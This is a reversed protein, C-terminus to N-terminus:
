GNLREPSGGLFTRRGVRRGGVEDIREFMVSNSGLGMACWGLFNGEVLRQARELLRVDGRRLAEISLRRAEVLWEPLPGVSGVRLVRPRLIPGPLDRVMIGLDINHKRCLPYLLDPHDFGGWRKPPFHDPEGVGEALGCVECPLARIIALRIRMVVPGIQNAHYRLRESEIRESLAESWSDFGNVRVYGTLSERWDSRLRVSGDFTEVAGIEALKATKDVVTQRHMLPKLTRALLAPSIPGCRHVVALVLLGTLKLAGHKILPSALTRGVLGKERHFLMEGLTIWRAAETVSIDPHLGYEYAHASNAPVLRRLFRKEALHSLRQSTGKGWSRQFEV